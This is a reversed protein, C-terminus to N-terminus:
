KEAKLEKWVLCFTLFYQFASFYIMLKSIYQKCALVNVFSRSILCFPFPSIPVVVRSNRADYVLEISRSNTYARPYRKHNTVIM